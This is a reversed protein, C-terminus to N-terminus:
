QKVIDVKGAAVYDKESPEGLFSLMVQEGGQIAKGGDIDKGIYFRYLFTKTKLAIPKANKGPLATPMTEPLTVSLKIWKESSDKQSIVESVFGSLSKMQPTKVSEPMAANTQESTETMSPSPTDMSADKSMDRNFRRLAFAVAFVMAIGLIVLSWFLVKNSHSPAAQWSM